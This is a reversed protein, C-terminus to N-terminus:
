EDAGVKCLTLDPVEYKLVYTHKKMVLMAHIGVSRLEKQERIAEGLDRCTQITM